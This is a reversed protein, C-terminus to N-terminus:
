TDRFVKTGLVGFGVRSDDLISSVNRATTAAM